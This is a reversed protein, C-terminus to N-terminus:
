RKVLRGTTNDMRYETLREDIVLQIIMKADNIDVCFWEKPHYIAGDKSTLSILLRQAYLFDHVVGELGRPNLDYCEATAVVEVTSELFATDNRSNYARSEITKTTFGIKYLNRIDRIKPDTSLSRVIYLQGTRVKESNHTPEFDRFDEAAAIVRRGTEDMYLSRNLSSLLINSETGNDFIIHLRPDHAGGSGIRLEGISQIFGIMGNLIFADNEKINVASYKITKLRGDKLGKNVNDLHAKYLHFDHCKTQKGVEDPRAPSKPQSFVDSQYGGSFWENESTALDNILDFDADLIDDISSPLTAGYIANVAELPPADLEFDHIYTDNIDNTDLIPKGASTPNVPPYIAATSQPLPQPRAEGEGKHSTAVDDPTSLPNIYDQYRRDDIHIAIYVEPAPKAAPVDAAISPNDKKAVKAVSHDKINFVSSKHYLINLTPMSGVSCLAAKRYLVDLVPMIVRSCLPSAVYFEPVIATNATITVVAPTVENESQTVPIQENLVLEQLDSKMEDFDITEIPASHEVVLDTLSPKVAEVVPVCACVPIPVSVPIPVLVPVSVPVDAEVVLTPKNTVVPELTSAPVDFYPEDLEFHGIRYLDDITPQRGELLTVPSDQHIDNEREDAIRESILAKCGIISHTDFPLLDHHEDPNKAYGQLRHALIRENWEEATTAPVRGMRTIFNSVQMFLDYGKAHTQSSPKKANVIVSGIILEDIADPENNIDDLLDDISFKKSLNDSM